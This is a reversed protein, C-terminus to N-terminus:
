GIVFKKRKKTSKTFSFISIVYLVPQRQNLDGLSIALQSMIDYTIFVGHKGLHELRLSFRLRFLFLLIDYIVLMVMHGLRLSFLYHVM